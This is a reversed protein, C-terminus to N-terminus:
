RTSRSSCVAGVAATPAAAVAAVSTMDLGPPRLLSLLALALPLSRSGGVSAAASCAEADRAEASSGEEDGGAEM